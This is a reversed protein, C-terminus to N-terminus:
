TALNSLFEEARNMWHMETTGALARYEVVLFRLWRAAGDRQARLEEHSAMLQEKTETDWMPADAILKRRLEIDKKSLIM